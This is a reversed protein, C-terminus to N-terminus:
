PSVYLHLGIDLTPLVSYDLWEIDNTIYSAGLGAGFGGAVNDSIAFRVEAGFLVTPGILTQQEEESYFNFGDYYSTQTAEVGLGGFQFDSYFYFPDIDFPPYLRVGVSAMVIDDVFDYGTASSAPFYGAGAHLGIEPIPHLQGYVGLGGYSQGYGASLSLVPMVQSRAPGATLVILTLALGVAPLWPKAAPRKNGQPSAVRLSGGEDARRVRPEDAARNEQEVVHVM